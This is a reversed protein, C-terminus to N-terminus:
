EEILRTLSALCLGSAVLLPQMLFDDYTLEEATPREEPLWRLIRRLFNLFPEKDEGDYQGFRMELSQEPITINGKWNGQKDWYKFCNDNRILFEPPPTGLLSFIETLHQEDDLIRDEMIGGSWIDVECDWDMGPMIDGNQNQIGLRAEGLDFLVCLAENVLMPRSYYINCDPLVKRAIPHKMEDENNQHTFAVSILVLQITRQFLGKPFKNDPFWNRFEALNMGLPQYLLCTHKGQPGVVEFSDMVLRVLQKGFHHNSNKLHESIAMEHDPQHEYFPLTEEEIKESHNLKVFGPTPFERPVLNPQSAM